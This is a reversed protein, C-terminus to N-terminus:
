RPRTGLEDLEAALAKAILAYGAPGPHTAGARGGLSIERERGAYPQFTARLDIWDLGAERVAAEIRPAVRPHSHRVYRELDRLDPFLAVAGPVGVAAATAGISELSEKMLQWGRNADDYALTWDDDVPSFRGRGSEPPLNEHYAARRARKRQKRWSRYYQSLYLGNKPFTYIEYLWPHIEYLWRKRAYKTAKDHVDNVPYLGVLVLDHEFDRLGNAYYFAEHFTEYGSVGTNVVQVPRSGGALEAELRQPWSEDQEVGAGFTWSDGLALIRFEGPPKRRTMEDDRMGHSNIRAEVGYHEGRFGPRLRKGIDFDPVYISLSPKESIRFRLYAELVGICLVGCLLLWAVSGAVAVRRRV